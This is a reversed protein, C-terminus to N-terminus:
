YYAYIDIGNVYYNDVVWDVYWETVDDPFATMELTVSEGPKLGDVHIKNYLYGRKASIYDGYLTVDMDFDTNNTYTVTYDGTEASRVRKPKSLQSHLDNQVELQAQWIPLIYDYQQTIYKTDPVLNYKADVQQVLLCLDVRSQSWKRWDEIGEIEGDDNFYICDRWSRLISLMDKAATQLDPDALKKQDIAEFQPLFQEHLVMLEDFEAEADISILDELLQLFAADTESQPESFLAPDPTPMVFGNDESEGTLDINFVVQLRESFTADESVGPFNMILVFILILAVVIFISGLSVKKKKPEFRSM